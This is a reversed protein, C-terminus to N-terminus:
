ALTLQFRRHSYHGNGDIWRNAGFDQTLVQVGSSDSVFTAVSEIHWGDNNDEIISVSHIDGITICRDFHFHSFPINWLDGKNALMDDGPLNYLTADRVLGRAVIQIAHATDSGGHRVGSTFAM